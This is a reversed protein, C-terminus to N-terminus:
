QPVRENKSLGGKGKDGGVIDVNFIKYILDM